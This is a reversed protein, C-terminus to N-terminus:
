PCCWENTSGAVKTCGAPAEAFGGDGTMPCMYPHACGQATPKVPACKTAECCFTTTNGFMPALYCTNDAPQKSAACDYATAGPCCTGPAPKLLPECYEGQTPDSVGGDPAPKNHGCWPAAAADIGADGPDGADAAADVVPVSVDAAAGDGSAAADPSPASTSAPSSCGFLCAAVLVVLVRMPEQM